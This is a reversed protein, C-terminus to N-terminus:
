LPMALIVWPLPIFHHIQENQPARIKVCIMNYVYKGFLSRAIAAPFKPSVWVQSITILSDHLAAYAGVLPSTLLTSREFQNWNTSGGGTKGIRNSKNLSGGSGAIACQGAARLWERVMKVAM